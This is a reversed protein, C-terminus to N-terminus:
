LSGKYSIYLNKAMGRSNGVGLFLRKYVVAKTIVHIRLHILKYSIDAYVKFSFYLM